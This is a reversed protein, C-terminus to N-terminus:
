EKGNFHILENKMRGMQATTDTLNVALIHHLDAVPLHDVHDPLAAVAEHHFDHHDSSVRFQLVGSPLSTRTLSEM